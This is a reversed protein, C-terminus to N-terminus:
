RRESTPPLVKVTAKIIRVHAPDCALDIIETDDLTSNDPLEVDSVEEVIKTVRYLKM